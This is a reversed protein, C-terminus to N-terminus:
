SLLSSVASKLDEYSGFSRKVGNVFFTPTANVNISYGFYVDNDVKSFYKGSSLCSNFSSVEIGLEAAYKQLQDQRLNSQNEFLKDHM